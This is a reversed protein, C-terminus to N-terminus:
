EEDEEDDLWNGNEDLLGADELVSIARELISDQEPTLMGQFNFQHYIDSALRIETKTPKTKPM